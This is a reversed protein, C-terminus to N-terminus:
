ERKDCHFAKDITQGLDKRTSKEIRRSELAYPLETQTVARSNGGKVESLVANSGHCIRAM